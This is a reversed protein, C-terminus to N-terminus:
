VFILIERTHEVVHVRAFFHLLREDKSIWYFTACIVLICYAMLFCCASKYMFLLDRFHIGVFEQGLFLSLWYGCVECCLVHVMGFDLSFGISVVDLSKEVGAGCFIFREGQKREYWGYYIIYQVNYRFFHVCGVCGGFFDNIIERTLFAVWERREFWMVCWVDRVQRGLQKLFRVSKGWPDAPTVLQVLISAGLTAATSILIPSLLDNNSNSSDGYNSSSSRFAAM